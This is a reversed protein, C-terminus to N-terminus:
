LPIQFREAHGFGPFNLFNVNRKKQATPSSIQLFRELFVCPGFQLNEINLQIGLHIPRCLHFCGWNEDAIRKDLPSEILFEHSQIRPRHLLSLLSKHHVHVLLKGQFEYGHEMQLLYFSSISM